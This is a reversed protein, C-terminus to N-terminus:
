IGYVINKKSKLLRDKEQWVFEGKKSDLLKLSIRYYVEKTKPLTKIVNSIEGVLVFDADLSQGLQQGTQTDELLDYLSAIDKSKEALQQPDTFRFRNTKNLESYIHGNITALDVKDATFDIVGFVALNPRKGNTAQVVAPDKMLSEVMTLSSTKLQDTSIGSDVTKSAPKDDYKVTNACGQLILAAVACGILLTKRMFERQKNKKPSTVQLNGRFQSELCPHKCLSVTPFQRVKPREVM